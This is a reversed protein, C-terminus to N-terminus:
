QIKDYLGNNSLEYVYISGKNDNSDNIHDERTAGVYIYKGDSTIEVDKGFYDNGYTSDSNGCLDQIKQYTGDYQLEYVIALGSNGM